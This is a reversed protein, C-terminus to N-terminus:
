NAGAPRGITALTPRHTSAQPVSELLHRFSSLSQPGALGGVNVISQPPLPEQCLVSSLQCLTVPHNKKPHRLPFLSQPLFKGNNGFVKTM